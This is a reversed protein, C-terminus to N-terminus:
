YIQFFIKYTRLYQILVKKQYSLVRIKLITNNTVRIIDNKLTLNSNNLSLDNKQHLWKKEKYLNKFIKFSLKQTKAKPKKIKIDIM